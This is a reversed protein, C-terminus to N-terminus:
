YSGFQLAPELDTRNTTFHYSIFHQVLVPPLQPIHLRQLSFRALMAGALCSPEGRHAGAAASGASLGGAAVIV